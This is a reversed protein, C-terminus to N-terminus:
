KATALRDTVDVCMAQSTSLLHTHKTTTTTYPAGLIPQSHWTDSPPPLVAQLMWVCPKVPLYYTHTHKTTTTTTYPAGLIPQSHWTDSSPPLVAQLMWVCPKIPLYYTHTNPQQQQTRCVLYLSVTGPTVQRHCSPRYCGCVHSSQYITPTHTNPQQQQTRRVLYLSVTGPTVQRHCSPRYCGCVHSSQYITPTHKTTTATYPAGLIPQSHWTDSSPPLVAQLM